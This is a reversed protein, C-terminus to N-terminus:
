TYKADRCAPHGYALSCCAAGRSEHREWYSGGDGHTPWRGARRRGLGTVAVFLEAHQASILATRLLELSEQLHDGSLGM